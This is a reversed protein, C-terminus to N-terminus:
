ALPEGWLRFRSVGGDPYITLRVHTIPSGAVDAGRFFHRTDACLKSREVLPEWRAGRFLQSATAGPWDVGEVSCSEPFNGIFHATDVELVRARGRAALELLIWDREHDPPRGRRTEWGGGMNAARGPLILQHMGGFRADSCALARGGRELAVLDVLGSPVEERQREDLESPSLRPEVHGFVRFRAVGGDPFIRLRVHTVVESPEAGFYNHCGPGLRVEPLLPWWALGLLADPLAFPAAVVGDVAAFQPQNGVFHSTDIDFGRVRGPAGLEIVAYDHGEGRRRRSEWGDMWKGRETFRGVEFRAPEPVLLRAAEAFFDDSTAVVRGGLGAAALEVLGAFAHHETM